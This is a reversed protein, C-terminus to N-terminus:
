CLMLQLVSGGELKRGSVMSGMVHLSSVSLSADPLVNIVAVPCVLKNCAHLSDV